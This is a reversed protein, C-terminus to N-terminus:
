AFYGRAHMEEILAACKEARMQSAAIRAGLKARYEERLRQVEEPSM